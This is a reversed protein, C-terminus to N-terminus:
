PTPAGSGNLAPTGVAGGPEPLLPQGTGGSPSGDPETEAGPEQPKGKDEKRQKRKEAKEKNREQRLMEKRRKEGSPRTKV